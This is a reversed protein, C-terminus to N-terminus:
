PDFSFGAESESAWIRRAQVLPGPLVQIEVFGPVRFAEGLRLRAGRESVDRMVASFVSNHNNFVVRAERLRKLRKTQRREIMM